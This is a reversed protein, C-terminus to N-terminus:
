NRGIWMILEILGWVILTGIILAFAASVSLAFGVVFAAIKEAKNGM